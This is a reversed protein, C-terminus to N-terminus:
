PSFFVQVPRANANYPPIPPRTYRLYLYVWIGGYVRVSRRVPEVFGISAVHPM